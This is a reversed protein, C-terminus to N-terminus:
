VIIDAIGLKVSEEASLYVNVNKALMAKITKVSMKTEESLVRIYQEQNYEIEKVENNIEHTLGMAGASAQHIMVRCNKGIKRKGKTGAALLVVGASMVQGIGTTHIECDKRIYRMTDYIANMDTIRGGPTNIVLEIPQNIEEFDVRIDIDEGSKQAKEIKKLQAKTFPKPVRKIRNHYLAMLSYTVLEGRQHPGGDLEGYLGVMRMQPPSEDDWPFSIPEKQDKKSSEVDDKNLKIKM